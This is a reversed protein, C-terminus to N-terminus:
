YMYDVLYEYVVDAPISLLEQETLPKGNPWEAYEIYANCFDPADRYDVDAFEVNKLNM